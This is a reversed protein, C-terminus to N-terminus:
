PLQKVRNLTATCGANRHWIKVGEGEVLSVTKHKAVFLLRVQMMLASCTEVIETIIILFLFTKLKILLIVKEFEEVIYM